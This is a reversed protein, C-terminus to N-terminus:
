ATNGMSESQLKIESCSFNKGFRWPKGCQPLNGKGKVPSLSLIVVSPDPHHPPSTSLAWCPLDRTRTPTRRKESDKSQFTPLVTKDRNPNSQQNQQSPLHHICSSPPCSFFWKQNRKSVKWKKISRQRQHLKRSIEM